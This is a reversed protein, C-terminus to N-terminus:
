FVYFIHFMNLTPTKFTCLHLEKMDNDSLEKEVSKKWKQYEALLVSNLV